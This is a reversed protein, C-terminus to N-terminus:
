AARRVSTTVGETVHVDWGRAAAKGRLTDIMNDLQERDRVFRTISKGVPRGDISKSMIVYYEAEPHRSAVVNVHTIKM